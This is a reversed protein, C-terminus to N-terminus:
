RKILYSDLSFIARNDHRVQVAVLMVDSLETEEVVVRYTYRPYRDDSEWAGTGSVPAIGNAETGVISLKEQALMVGSTLASSEAATAVTQNMVSVLTVLVISLIAISIVVEILTFGHQERM